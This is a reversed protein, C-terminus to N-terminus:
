RAFYWDEPNMFGLANAAYGGLNKAVLTGADAEYTGIASPAFIVPLQRAVYQSYATIAHAEGSAPGTITAAILRHMEPDSYNGQNAGAGPDYYLSEGTPLYDPGYIWGAGAYAVTWTCGPQRPQCASL